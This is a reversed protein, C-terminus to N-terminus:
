RFDLGLPWVKRGWRQGNPAGEASLLFEEPFSHLFPSVFPPPPLFVTLGETPLGGSLQILSHETGHAACGLM